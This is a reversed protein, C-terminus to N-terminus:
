CEPFDIHDYNSKSPSATEPHNQANGTLNRTGGSNEAAKRHSDDVEEDGERDEEEDYGDEGGDDEEPVDSACDELDRNNNQVRLARTVRKAGQTKQDHLLRKGTPEERVGANQLREGPGDVAPGM